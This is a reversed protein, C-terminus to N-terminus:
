LWTAAHLKATNWPTKWRVPHQLIVWWNHPCHFTARVRYDGWFVIRPDKATITSMVGSLVEEELTL